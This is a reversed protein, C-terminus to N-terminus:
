VLKPSFAHAPGYKASLAPHTDEDTKQGTPPGFPQGLRSFM